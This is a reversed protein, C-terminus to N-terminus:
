LSNLTEQEAQYWAHKIYDSIAALDVAEFLEKPFRSQLHRAVDDLEVANAPANRLVENLAEAQIVERVEPAQLALRSVIDEAFQTGSLERLVETNSQYQIRKAYDFSERVVASFVPKEYGVRYGDRDDPQELYGLEIAATVANYRSFHFEVERGFVAVKGWGQSATATLDYDQITIQNQM